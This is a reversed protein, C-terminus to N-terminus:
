ISLKKRLHQMTPFLLTELLILMAGNFIIGPLRKLFQVVFPAHTFDMIWRTQLLASLLLVCLATGIIVCLRNLKGRRYVFILGPIVGYLAANLMIGYHPAGMPHILIGILDSLLGAVGGFIPGLVFGAFVVPVMGLSVRVGFQSLNLSLFRTLIVALATLFATYIMYQNLLRRSNPILFTKLTATM